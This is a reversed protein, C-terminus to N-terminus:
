DSRRLAFAAEQGKFRTNVPVVTAGAALAGLFASIWVASNPAWIAVRDGAQIGRAALARAVRTMDAELDAYTLRTQGDIVAEKAAFREANARVLAPISDVAM